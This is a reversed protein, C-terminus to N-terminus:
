RDSAPMTSWWGSLQWLENAGYGATFYIRRGDPHIAIPAFNGTIGFNV